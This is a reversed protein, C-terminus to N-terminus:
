RFFNWSFALGGLAFGSFFSPRAREVYVQEYVVPAPAYLVAPAANAVVYNPYQYPTEYVYVPQVPQFRRQVVYTPAAAASVSVQVNSRRHKHGCNRAEASVFQTSLLVSAISLLYIFKIKM